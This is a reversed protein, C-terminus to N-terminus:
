APVAVRKELWDVLRDRQLGQLEAELVARATLTGDAVLAKVKAISLPELDLTGFEGGPISDTLPPPNSGPPKETASTGAMDANPVGLLSEDALLFPTLRPFLRIHEPQKDAWAKAVDRAVSHTRAQVVGVDPRSNRGRFYKLMWLTELLKVPM